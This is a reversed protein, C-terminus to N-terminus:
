RGASHLPGPTIANGPAGTGPMTSRPSTAWPAPAAKFRPQGVTQPERTKARLDFTDDTRPHPRLEEDVETPDHSREAVVRRWLHDSRRLILCTCDPPDRAFGEFVDRCEDCPHSLDPGRRDVPLFPHAPRGASRKRAPVAELSRVEVARDDFRAM